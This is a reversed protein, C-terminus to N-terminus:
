SRWSQNSRKLVAFDIANMVRQKYRQRERENSEFKAEINKLIAKSYILSAEVPVGVKKKNADLIHSVLGKSKYIRSDM